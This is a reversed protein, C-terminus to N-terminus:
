ERENVIEHGVRRRIQLAIDADIRELALRHAAVLEPVLTDELVECKSRLAEMTPEYKDILSRSQEVMAEAEDYTDNFLRRIVKLEGQKKELRKRLSSAEGTWRLVDRRVSRIRRFRFWSILRRILM